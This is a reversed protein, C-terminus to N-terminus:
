GLKEGPKPRYGNIFDAASMKKKGEPQLAHLELATGSSCGVQLHGARVALEGAVLTSEESLPRAETLLLQKGRFTTFAGPWPQFGRLRNWITIATKTWDIRGDEKTLVPALSAQSDDQPTPQLTGAELRALTEVLL